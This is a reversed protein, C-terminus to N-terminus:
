VKPASLARAISAEHAELWLEGIRHEAELLLRALSVVSNLGPDVALFIRAASEGDDGKVLLEIDWEHTVSVQASGAEDYGNGAGEVTGIITM